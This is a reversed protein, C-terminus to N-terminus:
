GADATVGLVKDHASSLCRVSAARLHRAELIRQADLLRDCAILEPGDFPKQDGAIVAQGPQEQGLALRLSV